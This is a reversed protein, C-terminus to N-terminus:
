LALLAAAAAIRVRPKPDDMLRFLKDDVGALRLSGMLEIAAVRVLLDDDTSAAHLIEAAKTGQLAVLSRLGAVRMVARRSKLALKSYFSARQLDSMLGIADLAAARLDDREAELALQLHPIMSGKHLKVLHRLERKGIWTMAKKFDAVHRTPGMELIGLLALRRVKESRDDLALKLYEIASDHRIAVLAEVAALRVGEDTDYIYQQLINVGDPSRISELARVLALKVGPVGESFLARRIPEISMAQGIDGIAHAAERRIPAAGDGLLGHLTPLASRGKVRGLVRVAAARKDIDTSMLRNELHGALKPNGVLAYIEYAARLLDIDSAEDKVIPKLLAFDAATAVKLLGQLALLKKGADDGQAHELLTAKGSADGRMGLAVAVRFAVDADKSELLPKLFSLDEVQDAEGVLRDLVAKQVTPSQKALVKAYVKVAGALPLNPLEDTFVALAEPNKKSIKKGMVALYVAVMLDGGRAALAKAYRDPKPFKPDALSAAILKTALKTGLPTFLPLVEQEADLSGSSMADALATQWTKKDKLLLLSGIAARRVQWQPDAVADRVAPLVRKSPGRGLGSVAMARDTFDGSRAGHELTSLAREQVLAAQEKKSPGSAKKKSRKAMADGGAFVVVLATILPVLTRRSNPLTAM